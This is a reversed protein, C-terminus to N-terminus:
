PCLKLGAAPRRSYLLFPLLIINNSFNQKVLLLNSYDNVM